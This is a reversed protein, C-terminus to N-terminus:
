EILLRTQDDGPYQHMDEAYKIQRASTVIQDKLTLKHTTSILDGVAVLAYDAIVDFPVKYLINM